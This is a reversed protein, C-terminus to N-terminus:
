EDKKVHLKYGVGRVTVIEVEKSPHIKSRLRKIHTDVTRPDGFYDTGWVLDLIQDRSFVREVQEGLVWLLDFEKKTLRLPKEDLKALYCDVDLSLDKIKLINEEKSKSEVRRLLARIRAMVERSSFPKTIYDDAGLDLGMIRDFDEGKASIMIVPVMSRQRIRRCLEYGDIGPMMIDLLIMDYDHNQFMKWAEEGDMAVDVQFGEKQAFRRLVETIQIQDDAILLRIDIGGKKWSLIPFTEM